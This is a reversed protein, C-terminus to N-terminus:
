LSVLTNFACMISVERESHDLYAVDDWGKKVLWRRACAGILPKFLTRTSRMVHSAWEKENDDLNPLQETIIKRVLKTYRDTCCWTVIFQDYIDKFAKLLKEGDHIVMTLLRALQVANPRSIANLDIEELHKVWNM